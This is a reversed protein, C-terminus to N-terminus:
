WRGQESEQRERGCWDEWAAWTSGLQLCAAETERGMWSERHILCSGGGKEEEEKEKDDKAMFEGVM